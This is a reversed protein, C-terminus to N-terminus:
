VQGISGDMAADYNRVANEVVVDVDEPLLYRQDALRLAHERAVAVYADRDAYREDLSPRSDQSAAREANTRAFPHTSGVMPIIQEPAGADPDRLNWGTYTAVPAALEPLRIGSAENGDDDVNSVLGVYARGEEVPLKAIGRDADPGLDTERLVWLREPDPTALGPVVDLGGLATSRLVASGDDIRPHASPPPDVGEVVWRDLNILAARLLPRYDIVNPLYRRDTGDIALDGPPPLERADAHQTGAFLYSRSEPADPLDQTALPDTHTLSADGRWYEAATNTYIIRPAAGRARLRSLLGDATESFPDTQTDDAFPFLHAFGPTSQVSPQGFRENFEGRRGGAVHPLLGDFAIRGGEDVNLGLYIFHRLLRGTQSVGYAYAHDFGTAVPNLPGPYRLFTAAERLALMSGAAIPSGDVNYIVHYIKGPVFGSELYVHEDSPVVGGDTQRAFRWASRPLETSPGDEWDKVLIRAAPDDVDAARYPKHVRNALTRTHQVVDPRIEVLAQGQVPAIPSEIGMMTESRYVDWQWGVSAVSFGRGFLFGDGVSIEATGRRDPEVLNFAPVVRRRGRNVVDIIVRGNGRSPDTPVLLTLDSAFRVLGADDRPAIALDTLGANTDHTPDVAFTLVGDIREYPGVRAFSQGAAFPTRNLIEFAVGAM